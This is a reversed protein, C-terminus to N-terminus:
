RTPGPAPSRTWATRPSWTAPSWRCTPGVAKIREIAKVVGASHGHATDISWPTSARAVLAEVREELDDGVGVGAAVRLRGKSDRSANPFDQRKQIDKVTILGALQGDDDVLPLKEIRHQQLLAKAEELDTGVAATVLGESTM